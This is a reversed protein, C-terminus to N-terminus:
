NRAYIVLQRGLDLVALTQYFRSLKEGKNYKRMLSEFKVRRNHCLKGMEPNGVYVEGFLMFMELPFSSEYYFIEYGCKELLNKISTVSFYNIHNPPCIWWQKLNFEDNAVTQFDNFENPVDLVLLGDKKLLQKKINLLTEAPRRLHELVNFSTVIDFRESGVVSFDEIGSQFVNLGQSRAYEVGEDTPELGTAMLGKNKFYLLAQAYGFGIDFISLDDLNGFYRECNDLVAQWRSDFFEKEEKQVELSSDNFQKYESSYFDKRYFQEVEEQTPIPDVRLYGYEPDEVLKSAKSYISVQEPDKLLFDIKDKIDERTVEHGEGLFWLIGKESLCKTPEVQNKAITIVLSPLGLCCREWTTGGASGIFLDSVKMMQAMNIIQHQCDVNGMHKGISEIRERYPNNLGIIVDVHLNKRGLLAIAELVKATENTPDGGGFFILIKQIKERVKVDKRAVLFEPRLLSYRPGLLLDCSDSVLEQYRSEMDEFLNQDLLLACDHPRNALDDIVMIMEVESRLQSEWPKSLSYHDVVLWESVGMDYLVDKTQDADVTQSVGLWRLYENDQSFDEVQSSEFPLRHIHHGKREIYDCLNGPLERCIFSADGGRKKIEDSLTLCRMVHGTGIQFSADARFVVRM